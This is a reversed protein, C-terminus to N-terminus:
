GDVERMSNISSNLFMYAHNGEANHNHCCRQFKDRVPWKSLIWIETIKGLITIERYIVLLNNSVKPTFQLFVYAAYVLHIKDYEQCTKNYSKWASIGRTAYIQILWKYIGTHWKISTKFKIKIQIKNLHIIHIFEVLHSNM